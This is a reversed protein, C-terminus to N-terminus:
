SNGADKVEKAMEEFVSAIQRFREGSPLIVYYWGGGETKKARVITDAVTYKKYGDLRTSQLPESM